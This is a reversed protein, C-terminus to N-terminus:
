SLEPKPANSPFRRLAVVSLPNKRERAWKWADLFDLPQPPPTVAYALHVVDRAAGRLAVVWTRDDELRQFEARNHRSPLACGSANADTRAGTALEAGSDCAVSKEINFFRYAVKTEGIRPM